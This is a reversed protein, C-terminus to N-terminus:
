QRLHPHVGRHTIIRTNWSILCCSEWYCVMETILEM